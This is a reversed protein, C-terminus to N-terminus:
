QITVRVLGSAAGSVPLRAQIVHDGPRLPWRATYPYDAVEYPKGDVYWVVQATPPDVV